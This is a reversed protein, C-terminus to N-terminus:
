QASIMPRLFEPSVGKGPLSGATDRRRWRALNGAPSNHFGSWCGSPATKASAWVDHVIPRHLGVLVALHKRSRPKQNAVPNIMRPPPPSSRDEIAKSVRSPVPPALILKDELATPPPLLPPPWPAPSLLLSPLFRASLLSVEEDPTVTGISGLPMAAPPPPGKKVRALRRM